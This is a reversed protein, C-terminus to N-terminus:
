AAEKKINRHQLVYAGLRAKMEKVIGDTSLGYAQLYKILDPKKLNPIASVTPLELVVSREVKRQESVPVAEQEVVATVTLVPEPDQEEKSETDLGDPSTPPTPDDEPDTPDEDEAISGQSGGSALAATLLLPDSANEDVIAVLANKFEEVGEVGYAALVARFAKSATELASEAAGKATLELQQQQQLATLQQRAEELQRQLEQILFETAQINASTNNTFSAFLM